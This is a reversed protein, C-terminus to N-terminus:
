GRARRGAEGRVFPPSLPTEEGRDSGRGFWAAGTLSRNRVLWFRLRTTRGFAFPAVGGRLTRQASREEEAEGRVLAPGLPPEEGRWGVVRVLAIAAEIGWWSERWVWCYEGV